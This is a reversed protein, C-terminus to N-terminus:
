ANGTKKALHVLSTAHRQGNNQLTTLNNVHNQWAEVITKCPKSRPKNDNFGPRASSSGKTRGQDMRPEDKTRGQSKDKTQGQKTKTTDKTQGQRRGKNTRHKDKTLGQNHGQHQQQRPQTMPDDNTQGPNQGLNM